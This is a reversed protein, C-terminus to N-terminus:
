HISETETEQVRRSLLEYFYGGCVRSYDVNETSVSPEFNTLIAPWTRKGLMERLDLIEPVNEPHISYFVLYKFYQGTIIGRNVLQDLNMAEERVENRRNIFLSDLELGELDADAVREDISGVSSVELIKVKNRFTRFDDDLLLAELSVDCNHLELEHIKPDGLSSKLASFESDAWPSMLQLKRIRKIKTSDLLKQVTAGVPSIKRFSADIAIRNELNNIFGIIEGYNGGSMFEIELYTLQDRLSGLLRDFNMYSNLEAVGVVNRNTNVLELV